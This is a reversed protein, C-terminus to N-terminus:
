TSIFRDLARRFPIVSKMSDSLIHFPVKNWLFATNVFFSYRFCNISSQLPVISLEHARNFSNKHSYNHYVLSTRKNLIDYLMSPSLYDLRSGLTPWCLADFCNDSSKSWGRFLPNHGGLLM